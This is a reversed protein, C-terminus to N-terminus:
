HRQELLFYSIYNEFSKTEDVVEIVILPLFKESIYYPIQFQVPSTKVSEYRVTQVGGGGEFIGEMESIECM